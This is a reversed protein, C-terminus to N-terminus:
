HTILNCDFMNVPEIGRISKIFTNKDICMISDKVVKNEEFQVMENDYVLKFYLENNNDYFEYESEEPDFLLLLDIGGTLYDKDVNFFKSIGYEKCFEKWLYGIESTKLFYSIKQNEYSHPNSFINKDHEKYQENIRKIEKETLEIGLRSNSLLYDRKTKKSLDLKTLFNPINEKFIKCMNKNNYYKIYILSNKDIKFYAEIKNVAVKKKRKRSM